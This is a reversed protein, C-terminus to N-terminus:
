FGMEVQIRGVWWGEYAGETHMEEHWALDGQIKLYHGKIYKSLGITYEAIDQNMTDEFPLVVSYRGALEINNKFLYALHSYVAQGTYFSELFDGNEDYIIYDDSTRHAYEATFTTGRYKMIVDAFITRLDTGRSLYSGLQARERIADVNYDFTFGFAMKLDAERVLDAYFYDGKKGFPGFPLYELRFTYDLGGKNGVTINRGEGMSISFIERIEGESGVKSKNRFQVGIDRDINFRANLLSRDVFTLAQSSVVRERNGPLKTQGFWVWFNGAANWKVVADLIVRPSSSTFESAGSLDRNSFGLEVKYVFRPDHVFGDFKLRARRTLFSTTSSNTEPTFSYLFLSQFRGKFKMEYNGDADRFVVGNDISIPSFTQPAEQGFSSFGLILLPLYIIRNIM